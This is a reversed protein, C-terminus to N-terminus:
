FALQLRFQISRAGHAGNGPNAISAGYSTTSQINVYQAPNNTSGSFNDTVTWNPHNFVNIFESYINLRLREFIPISKIISFDANVFRPGRLFIFSGLQGPTTVPLIPQAGNAFLKPNLFTVPESSNPGSFIGVNSQLQSQTIGSLIVGSDSEDPANLPNNFYNFSNFGGLLKFNRGSQATFVTGLSWDGIVHNV